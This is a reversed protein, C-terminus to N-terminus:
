TNDEVSATPAQAKVGNDSNAPTTYSESTGIM